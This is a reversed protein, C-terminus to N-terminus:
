QVSSGPETTPSEVEPGASATPTDHQLPDGVSRFIYGDTSMASYVPVSDPSYPDIVYTVAQHLNQINFDAKILVAGFLDTVQDSHCSSNFAFISDALRVTAFTTNGVTVLTGKTGPRYLERNISDVVADVTHGPDFRAVLGAVEEPFLREAEVTWAGNLRSAAASGDMICNEVLHSWQRLTDEDEVNVAYERTVV